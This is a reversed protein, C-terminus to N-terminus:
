IDSQHLKLYSFSICAVFKLYMFRLLDNCINTFRSVLLLVTLRCPPCLNVRSYSFSVMRMRTCICTCTYTNLNLVNLYAANFQLGNMCLKYRHKEDTCLYVLIRISADFLKALCIVCNSTYSQTGINQIHTYQEILSLLHAFSHKIFM